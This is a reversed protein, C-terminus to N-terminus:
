SESYSYATVLQRSYEHQQARVFDSTANREVVEGRKMVLLEDCIFATAPLGHSVFLLGMDHRDMYRKLLNLVQGQVSVDLASAVEDCLLIEPEVILSRALAIRQRQGGSVQQPYRDYIEPDLGLDEALSSLRANVEAEDTIGCLFRLPASVAKSLPQRPDFSSSTDQAVYQVKRRFERRGSISVLLERLDFGCYAVTGQTPVELGCIMKSLTTKGSGSEGIVGLRTNSDITLDLTQVATFANAGRGYRKSVSKLNLVIPMQLDAM